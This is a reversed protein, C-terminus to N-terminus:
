NFFLKDILAAKSNVGVKEYINQVHRNVTHKSIHLQNAITEYEMGQKLHLIIEKERTTLSHHAANTEFLKEQNQKINTLYVDSYQKKIDRISAASIRQIQERFTKIKLKVEQILFPKAIFDIAGMALSQMKTEKDDKATLFIFPIHTWREDALTKELLEHGNMTDMMIDSIILDPIPITELRQLAVEGNIAVYVNYSDGLQEALYQLLEINDEVLLLCPRNPLYTSDAAKSSLSSLSLKPATHKQKETSISGPNLIVPISVSFIVGLEKSSFVEIHSGMSDLIQKVIYLGMGMGQKNLKPHALQYFPEFLHPIQDAAIETGSNQIVIKAINSDKKLSVNIIGQRPTYKVANELLNNLVQDIGQLNVHVLIDPEIDFELKLEGKEAYPTFIEIKEELFKNLLLVDTKSYSVRGRELNEFNLYDLIDRHMKQVNYRMILLEEDEGKRQIYKELYNEVLTLPTKIEHSLNIFFMSKQDNLKELLVKQHQNKAREQEYSRRFFYVCFSSLFMITITGIFLDIQHMQQTKYHNTILLPYIFWIM